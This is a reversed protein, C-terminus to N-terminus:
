KKIRLLIYCCCLCAGGVLWAEWRDKLAFVNIFFGGFLGTLFLLLEIISQKMIIDESFLSSDPKVLVAPSM